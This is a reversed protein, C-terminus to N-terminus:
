SGEILAAALLPLMIEHHGTLAYGKGTGATPRTVVNTLARYHRLFDLNVTTLGDLSRGDNRAIAVAKLFVEPLVVASGCNLFVGGALRAVASTFYKFDRLSAEGIAAGSASPHMHIIDTGIAVHATLPIGLRHASAAISIQAFPARRDSLFRGVSQGLGLGVAVGDIIAQNLQTGTEEAMGFTGPGLTADVDESTAGSLAIEFDHIIGAGNTAIASVFGREMLDVIVPSLGTKLVHAGLGWIIARGGQRATVLAQVVAKFDSAALLAPLTKLLGDVGTGKKYPTAFQALTVKSQRSRLPYTTVGSLDFEEYPLKM